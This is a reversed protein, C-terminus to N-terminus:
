DVLGRKKQRSAKLAGRNYIRRGRDKVELIINRGKVINAEM